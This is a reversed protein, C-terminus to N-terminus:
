TWSTMETNLHSSMCCAMAWCGATEKTGRKELEKRRLCCPGFGGRGRRRGGSFGELELAVGGELAAVEGGGEGEIVLREGEEGGVDEEEAVAGGGQGGEGAVGVSEGDAGEGEREASQV